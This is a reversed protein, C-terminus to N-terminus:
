PESRTEPKVPRGIGACWIIMTRHVIQTLEDLPIRRGADHWYQLLGTFASTILAIVYETAPNTQADNSRKM